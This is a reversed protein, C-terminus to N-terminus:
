AAKRRVDGYEGCPNLYSKAKEAAISLVSKGESRRPSTKVTVDSIFDVSGCESMETLFTSDENTKYKENFRIGNSEAIDKRVYILPGSGSLPLSEFINRLPTLMSRVTNTCTNFLDDMPDGSSKSFSGAVYGKRASDVAREIANRPMESDADMFIVMDSNARHMGYNRAASVGSKKTKYVKAGAKGAIDGTGDTSGDDIVVVDVGGKYEQNLASEVASRIYGAENFAPIVVTVSPNEDISDFLGYQRMMKQVVKSAFGVM